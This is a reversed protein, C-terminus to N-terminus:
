QSQSQIDPFRINFRITYLTEEDGDNFLLINDNDVIVTTLKDGVLVQVKPSYKINSIANLEDENLYQSFVSLEKHAVTNIADLQTDGNIFADDWNAFVNRKITDKSEINLNHDKEATFKWYDWGGLTNLWTIYIDQNACERNINFTKKESLICTEGSSLQIDIKAADSNYTPEVRYVGTDTYDIDKLETRLLAGNSDYENQVYGFSTTDYLDYKSGIYNDIQWKKCPDIDLPVIIMESIQGDLYNTSFKGINTNLMPVSGLDGEAVLVNDVFMCSNAGDIVAKVVTNIGLVYPDPDVLSTSGNFLALKGETSTTFFAMRSAEDSDWIQSKTDAKFVTYVVMPQSLNIDTAFYQNTGNFEVSPLGNIGSTKYIPEQTAVTTVSVNGTRDIWSSVATSDSQGIDSAVLWMDAIDAIDLDKNTSGDLIISTDFYENDFITPINFNTMFKSNVDRGIYDYMNGGRSNQFQLSSNNGWFLYECVTPSISVNDVTAEIFQVSANTFQVAIYQYDNTPIFSQSLNPTNSVNVSILTDFTSLDNSGLIRYTLGGGSKTINSQILYEVNAVLEVAQYLYQSKSDTDLNVKAVGTDWVFTDGVGTQTWGSLDTAFDGNTVLENGCGAVEDIEWATYVTEIVGNVNEDYGERWQIYFGTFSSLEIGESLQNNFTIDAKIIGSFSAIIDNDVNPIVRLTGVEIIPNSAYDVHWSPLGGFVKVESFYNIYHKQLEGLALTSNYAVYLVFNQTDIVEKVRWINNYEDISANTMQVYEGELVNTLPTVLEVQLFGDNNTFSATFSIPDVSNVPYLDSNLKYQIPLNTCNWTSTNGDIEKAPRSTVTLAM